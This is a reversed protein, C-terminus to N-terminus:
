HIMIPSHVRIFENRWLLSAYQLPFVAYLFLFRISYSPLTCMCRWSCNTSRSRSCFLHHVHVGHNTISAHCCFRSIPFLNQERTQLVKHTFFSIKVSAILLSRHFRVRDREVSTAEPFSASLVLEGETAQCAKELSLILHDLHLSACESNFNSSVIVSRATSGCVDDNYLPAGGILSSAM